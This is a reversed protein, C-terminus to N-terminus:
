NPSLGYSAWDTTAADKAPAPQSSAAKVDSPADGGADKPMPPASEDLERGDGWHLVCGVIFVLAIVLAVAGVIVWLKETKSLSASVGIVALFLNSMM